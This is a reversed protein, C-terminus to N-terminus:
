PLHSNRYVGIISTKSIPWYGSGLEGCLQYWYLNGWFRVGDGGIQWPVINRKTQISVPIILYTTMTYVNTKLGDLSSASNKINRIKKGSETVIPFSVRNELRSFIFTRLCLCSIFGFWDVKALHSSMFSLWVSNIVGLCESYKVAVSKSGFM